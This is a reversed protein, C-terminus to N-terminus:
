EVGILPTTPFNGSTVVTVLIYASGLVMSKSVTNEIVSGLGGNNVVESLLELAKGDTEAVVLVTGLVVTEVPPWAAEILLVSVDDVGRDDVVM